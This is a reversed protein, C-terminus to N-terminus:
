LKQNFSKKLATNLLVADTSYPLFQYKQKIYKKLIKYKPEIIHIGCPIKYRKSLKNITNLVSKFKPHNFKGTINMSASLDYPGILIADLGKVSLIKELNNVSAINEIMAVIIPKIKQKKYKAFKKGFLNARSYGVGRTGHPPLYCANRISILELDNNINPIIVGACGADLAQNCVEINKSPLRVLSLKNKVEIARFLDPLDGISFSGHEMDLAIWNYNADSMIEAINSNSIQIWGGILVKGLKLDRRFKKINKITLPTM